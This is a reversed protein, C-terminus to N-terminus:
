REAREGLGEVGAAAATVDQDPGALVVGAERRRPAGEDLTPDCHVRACRRGLSDALPGEQASREHEVGVCHERADHDLVAVPREDRLITREDGFRREDSAILPNSGRPARTTEIEAPPVAFLVGDSDLLLTETSLAVVLVSTQTKATQESTM